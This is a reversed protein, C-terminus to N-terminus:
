TEDWKVFMPMLACRFGTDDRFVAPASPSVIGMTFSRGLRELTQELYHSALAIKFEGGRLLRCDLRVTAEAEKEGKAVMTLSAIDHAFASVMLRIISSDFKAIPKLARVARLMSAREIELETVCQGPILAAYDPYQGPILDIAYIETDIRFIAAGESFSLAVTAQRRLRSLLAKLSEGRVIWRGRPLAANVSAMALGFGDACVLTVLGSGKQHDFFVGTLVPRTGQKDAFPVVKRVATALEKGALNATFSSVESTAVELAAM